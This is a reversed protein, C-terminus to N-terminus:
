FYEMLINWTESTRETNASTPLWAPKKRLLKLGLNSFIVNLYEPDIQYICAAHKGRCNAVFRVSWVTEDLLDSYPNLYKRTNSQRNLNGQGCRRTEDNIYVM